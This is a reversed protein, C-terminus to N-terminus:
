VEFNSNTSTFEVMDIVTLVGDDLAERVTQYNISNFVVPGNEKKIELSYTNGCRTVVLNHGEFQKNIATM